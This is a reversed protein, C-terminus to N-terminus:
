PLTGKELAMGKPDYSKPNKISTYAIKRTSKLSGKSRVRIASPLKSLKANLLIPLALDMTRVHLRTERAGTNITSAM